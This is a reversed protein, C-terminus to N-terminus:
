RKFIRHVALKDYKGQQIELIYLGSSLHRLDISFHEEQNFHKWEGLTRGWQDRLILMAQPSVKIHIIGDTPNPFPFSSFSNEWESTGIDASNADMAPWHTQDALPQTALVSQLASGDWAYFYAAGGVTSHAGHGTSQAWPAGVVLLSDDTALAWGFAADSSSDVAATRDLENIAQGAWDLRYTFVKGEGMSRGPLGVYSRDASGALSWGFADGAQRDQAVLKFAYMGNRSSFGYVAGASDLENAGTADMMDFPASVLLASDVSALASGFSAYPQRHEAVLKGFYQIGAGNDRWLYASGADELYNAEASDLDHGPAGVVYWDQNNQRVHMVSSGFADGAQGDPAELIQLLGWQGGSKQYCFVRGTDGPAGVMMMEDNMYLASGFRSGAKRNAPVLKATDLYQGYTNRYYLYVAGASDLPSQGSANHREWPAGVAAFDHHLAVAYGFGDASDRDQALLQQWEIWNSQMRHRRFVYAAGMADFPGNTASTDFAEAYSGPKGWAGILAYDGAVSVSYGFADLGSAVPPGSTATSDISHGYLGASSGVLLEDYFLFNIETGVPYTYGLSWSSSSALPTMYVGEEIALFLYGDGDVMASPAAHIGTASMSTWAPGSTLNRNQVFAETGDYGAAFLTTGDTSLKLDYFSYPSLIEHTVTWVGAVKKVSYVGQGQPMAADYEVSVFCVESGDWDIAWEVDTVNVDAGVTSAELLIQSWTAGADESIFLGGKDVGDTRNYGAMIQQDNAPNIRLGDVHVGYRPFNYISGQAGGLTPDFLLTWDTALAGGNSTKYIRHNAAYVENTDIFAISYYPAGDNQPFITSRWRAASAGDPLDNVKRIGSKSAVFGVRFNDTMQMDHVQVATFGNNYDFITDGNPWAYGMGVNTTLYVMEDFIPDAEVQGSNGKNMNQYHHHGMEFLSGSTGKALSAWAGNYLEYNSGTVNAYAFNSGPIGGPPGPVNFAYTNWTVGNDDTWAMYKDLSPSSGPVPGGAMLWRGDPGIGCTTWEMDTVGPDAYLYSSILSSSSLANYPDAIVMLQPSTGPLFLHPYDTTPDILLTPPDSMAFGMIYPSQADESYSGSSNLTGHVLWTEGPLVGNRVYLLYNDIILLSQVMSDIPINYGLSPHSAYLISQHIFYVYGSADHADIRNISSGYGANLDLSPMVTWEHQRFVPGAFGSFRGAGTYFMSNASEASIYILVSDVDVQAVAMGLVRGGYVGHTEPATLTQATTSLLPLLSLLFCFALSQAKNKM